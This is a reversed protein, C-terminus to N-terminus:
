HQHQQTQPESGAASPAAGGGFGEIAARMRSESDVLFNATTVVEDGPEVGSLIAVKGDGRTGTLM